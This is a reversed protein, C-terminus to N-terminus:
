GCRSERSWGYRRRKAVTLAVVAVCGIANGWMMGCLLADKVVAYCYIATVGHSFSWFMWTALSIAHAGSPERAVAMIQPVYFALRVVNCVTYIATISLLIENQSM